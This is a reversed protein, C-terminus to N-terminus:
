EFNSMTWKYMKTQLLQWRNNQSYLISQKFEPYAWLWSSLFMKGYVLVQVYLTIKIYVTYMYM